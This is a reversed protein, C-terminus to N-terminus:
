VDLNPLHTIGQAKLSRKLNDLLILHQNHYNFHFQEENGQQIVILAAKLFELFPTGSRFSKWVGTCCRFGEQWLFFSAPDWVL